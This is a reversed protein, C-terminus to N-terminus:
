RGNSISVSSPKKLVPPQISTRTAISIQTLACHPKPRKATYKAFNSLTEHDVLTHEPITVDLFQPDIVIDKVPGEIDNVMGCIIKIKVGTDLELEPIQDKEM